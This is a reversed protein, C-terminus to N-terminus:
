FKLVVMTSSLAGLAHPEGSCPAPTCDRPALKAGQISASPDSAERFPRSPFRNSLKRKGALSPNPTFVLISASRDSRIMAPFSFPLCPVCVAYESHTPHRIPRVITKM